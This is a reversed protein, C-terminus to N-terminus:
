MYKIISECLLFGYEFVSPSNWSMYLQFYRAKLFEAFVTCTHSKSEENIESVTLHKVLKRAKFYEFMPARKDIDEDFIWVNVRARTLATYLHKLESNLVKHLNSDFELPRPRDSQQLVSEDIEALSEQHHIFETQGQHLRELYETM